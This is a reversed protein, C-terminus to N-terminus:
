QNGTKVVSHTYDSTQFFATVDVLALDMDGHFKWKQDWQNAPTQMMFYYSAPSTDTPRSDTNNKTGWYETVNNGNNDILYMRFKYREDRGWSEQNFTVPQSSAKFIGYGQYPLEFIDANSPCFFLKFSAVEIYNANGLNFDLNIRYVATKSVTIQTEGEKLIGDETTFFKRIEGTKGSTFYYDKGETLKTYVEFEGGALAKMQHAKSLDTGGESGEGTVFVDIPVDEFGALRTINITRDQTSKLTNIGKSTFVTWKLTGTEAIPIGAMGAIKNMQKHTISASNKGGSNDSFMMYVPNSFDGGARDFAIQYLVMGTEEVKCAEWEFYLSAGATTQLIVNRANAPELLDSVAILRTDKENKDSCSAFAFVLFFLIISNKLLSKM